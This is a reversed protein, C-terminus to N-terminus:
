VLSSRKPFATIELDTGWSFIHRDIAFRPSFEELSPAETDHCSSASSQAFLDGDLERFFPGFFTGWICKCWLWLVLVIEYVESHDDWITDFVQHHAIWHIISIEKIKLDSSHDLTAPLFCPLTPPSWTLSEPLPWLSWHVGTGTHGTHGEAIGQRRCPSAVFQQSM